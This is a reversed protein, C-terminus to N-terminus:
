VDIWDDKMRRPFNRRFSRAHWAFGLFMLGLFIFFAAIMAVLFAPFVLILVGFGLLIAGLTLPQKWASKEDGVWFDYFGFFGM